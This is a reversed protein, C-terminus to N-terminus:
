LKRSRGGYVNRIELIPDGKYILMGGYKTEGVIKETAQIIAESQYALDVVAEKSFLDAGNYKVNKNLIIYQKEAIGKITINANDNAELELSEVNIVINVTSEGNIKLRLERTKLTDINKVIANREVELLKLRTFTFKLILRKGPLYLEWSKLSLIDNLVRPEIDNLKIGESIIELKNFVGQYLELDCYCLGLKIEDYYPLFFEKNAQAHSTNIGVVLILLSFLPLIKRFDM